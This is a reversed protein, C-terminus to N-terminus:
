KCSCPACLQGRPERGGENSGGSAHSCPWAPCHPLDATVTCWWQELSVTAAKPCRSISSEGDEPNTTTGKLSFLNIM